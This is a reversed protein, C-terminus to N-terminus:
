DLGLKKRNSKKTKDLDILFGVSEARQRSTTGKSTEYFLDFYRDECIELNMYSIMQCGFFKAVADDYQTYGVSGSPSRPSKALEKQISVRINNVRPIANNPWLMGTDSPVLTLLGRLYALDVHRGLPTVSQVGTKCANLVYSELYPLTKDSLWYSPKVNLRKIDLRECAANEFQVKNEGAFAATSSLVVFCIISIFVKIM